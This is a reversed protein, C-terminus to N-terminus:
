ECAFYTVYGAVAAVGARQLGPEDLNRRHAPSASWAQVVRAGDFYGAALDEVCLRSTTHSFREDFGGHSLQGAAAMERSHGAAIQELGADRDLRGLGLQERRANIADLVSAAFAGDTAALAPGGVVLVMALAAVKLSIRHRRSRTM